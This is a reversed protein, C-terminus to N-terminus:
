KREVLVYNSTDLISKTICSTQGVSLPNLHIIYKIYILQGDIRTIEFIPNGPKIGYTLNGTVNAWCQGVKPEKNM